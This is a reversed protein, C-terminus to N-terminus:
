MCIAKGSLRGSNDKAVERVMSLTLISEEKLEQDFNVWPTGRPDTM